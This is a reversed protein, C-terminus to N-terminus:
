FLPEQEESLVPEDTSLFIEPNWTTADQEREPIHGLRFKEFVSGSNTAAVLGNITVKGSFTVVNPAEVFIVGNIVVDSAFTPNTGLALMATFLPRHQPEQIRSWTDAEAGWLPGQVDASGM